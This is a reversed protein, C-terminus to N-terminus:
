AGWLAVQCGKVGGICGRCAGGIGDIASVNLRFTSSHLRRNNVMNQRMRKSAAVPDLYRLVEWALANRVDECNESTSVLEALYDSTRSTSWVGPSYGANCRVYTNKACSGTAAPSKVPPMVWVFVSDRKFAFM